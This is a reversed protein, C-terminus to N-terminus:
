TPPSHIGNENKLLGNPEEDAGVGTLNVRYASRPAFFLRQALKVSLIGDRRRHGLRPSDQPLTAHARASPAEGQPHLSAVSRQDAHVTRM